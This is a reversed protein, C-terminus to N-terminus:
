VAVIVLIWSESPKIDESFVALEVISKADKFLIRSHIALELCSCAFNYTKSIVLSTFSPIILEFNGTNWFFSLEFIVFLKKVHYVGNQVDLVGYGTIVYKIVLKM